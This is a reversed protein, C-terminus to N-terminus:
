KEENEPKAKEIIIEENEYGDRVGTITYSFGVDGQNFYDDSKMSISVRSTSKKVVYLLVPSGEPTLQVTILGKKSTVLTFHEPLNIIANGNSTRMFGRVVTLVEGSEMSTYKIEKTSDEPHAQIFNKSGYCQLGNCAIHGKQMGMYGGIVALDGYHVTTNNAGSYSRFYIDDGNLHITAFVGSVMVCSFLLACVKRCGKM